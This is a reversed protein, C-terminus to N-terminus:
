PNPEETPRPAEPAKWAASCEKRLFSGLIGNIFSAAEETEYSKALEVAENIAAGSPIEPMYMLEYMSMRLISATLRSIRSFKWGVAYKEIYSDLEAGHEDVGSVLKRVYELQPDDEQFRTYLPDEEQLDAAAETTLREALFGPARLDSFSMEYILRLSLERAATRTMGSM